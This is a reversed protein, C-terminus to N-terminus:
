LLGWSNEINRVNPTLTRGSRRVGVHQDQVASLAMPELLMWDGVNANKDVDYEEIIARMTQTNENEKLMVRYDYKDKIREQARRSIKGGFWGLGVCLLM